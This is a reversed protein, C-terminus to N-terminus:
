AIFWIMPPKLDDNDVHIYKPHLGFRRFGVMSLAEVIKLRKGANVCEIHAARGILHSSTTPAMFHNTNYAPTRYGSLIKFRIKAIDRAEDLMEIFERDMYKYGSGVLTPCDFEDFSFYKYEM